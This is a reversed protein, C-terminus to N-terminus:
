LVRQLLQCPRGLHLEERRAGCDEALFLPRNFVHPYDASARHLEQIAAPHEIEEALTLQESM